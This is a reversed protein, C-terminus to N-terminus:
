AKCFLILRFRLKTPWNACISYAIAFPLYSFLCKKTEISKWCGISQTWAFIKAACFRNGKVLRKVTWKRNFSSFSGRAGGRLTRSREAEWNPSSHFRVRSLLISGIWKGGDEMRCVSCNERECYRSKFQNSRQLLIKLLRSKLSWMHHIAHDTCSRSQDGNKARDSYEM